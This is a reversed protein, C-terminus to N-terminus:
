KLGDSDIMIMACFQLKEPDNFLCALKSDLGRRNYLGTLVDYDREMEIKQLLYSLQENKDVLSVVM